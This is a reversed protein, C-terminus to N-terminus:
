TSHKKLCFPEGETVRKWLKGIIEWAILPAVFGAMGAFHLAPDDSHGSEDFYATLDLHPAM